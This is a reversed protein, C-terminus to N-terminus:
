QKLIWAIVAKLDADSIKKADMPAMPLPGWVGKTGSRVKAALSAGAGPDARYKQAVDHFSPGVVKKDTAHCMTCGADTALDEPAAPAAALATLSWGLAALTLCLRTSM